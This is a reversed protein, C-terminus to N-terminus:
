GLLDGFLCALGIGCIIFLLGLIAILVLMEKAVYKM